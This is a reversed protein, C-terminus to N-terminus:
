SPDSGEGASFRRGCQRIKAILNDRLSYRALWGIVHLIMSLSVSVQGVDKMATSFGPFECQYFVNPFTDRYCVSVSRM